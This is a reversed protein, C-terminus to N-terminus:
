KRIVSKRSSFYFLIATILCLCGLAVCANGEGFSLFLGLIVSRLTLGVGGISSFIPQIVAPDISMHTCKRAWLLNYEANLSKQIIASLFFAVFAWIVTTNIYFVGFVIFLGIM